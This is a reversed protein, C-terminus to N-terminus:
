QPKVFSYGHNKFEKKNTIEKGDGDLPQLGPYTSMLTVVPKNKYTGIRATILNFTKTPNDEIKGQVVGIDQKLFGPTGAEFDAETYPEVDAKTYPGDKNEVTKKKKVLEYENDNLVKEVTKWDENRAIARDIVGSRELDLITGTHEQKKLSDFGIEAGADVNLWKYKFVPGEQGSKTPNTEITNLILDSVKEPSISWKSGTSSRDFHKKIHNSDLEGPFQIYILKDTDKIMDPTLGEAKNKLFRNNKLINRIQKLRDKRKKERKAVKAARRKGPQQKKKKEVLVKELEEKIISGLTQKTIKIKM